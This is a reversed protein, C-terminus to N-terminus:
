GERWRAEHFLIEARLLRVRGLNDLSGAEEFLPEARVLQSEAEALRAEHRLL